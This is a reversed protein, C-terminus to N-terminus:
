ALRRARACAGGNRSRRRSLSRIAASGRYLNLRAAYGAANRMQLAVEVAGRQLGGANVFARLADLRDLHVMHDATLFDIEFKRDAAGIDRGVEAYDILGASHRGRRDKALV